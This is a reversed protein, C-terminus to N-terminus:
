FGLDLDEVYTAVHGQLKAELKARAGGAYAHQNFTAIKQDKHISVDSSKWTFWLVGTERTRFDMAFAGFALSIADNQKDAVGLLFKGAEDSMTSNKFLRLKNGDAPLAAVADIAAKAIAAGNQSAVAQLVEVIVKDVTLDSSSAHFEEWNFSMVWGLNSMVTSYNKFWAKMDAFSQNNPVKVDSNLQAALATYEVDQKDQGSLNATFATVQGKILSASPADPASEVRGADRLGASPSIGLARAHSDLDPIELGSAFNETEHAM